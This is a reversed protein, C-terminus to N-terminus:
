LVGGGGAWVADRKKEVIHSKADQSIEISRKCVIQDGRSVMAGWNKPVRVKVQDWFSSAVKGGQIKAGDRYCRGNITEDCLEEGGM